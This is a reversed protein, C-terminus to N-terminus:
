CWEVEGFNRRRVYAGFYDKFQNWDCQPPPCDPHIPANQDVYVHWQHLLANECEVEGKGLVIWAYGAVEATGVWVGGDLLKKMERHERQLKAVMKSQVKNM